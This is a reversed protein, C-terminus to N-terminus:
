KFQIVIRDALRIVIYQKQKVTTLKVQQNDPQPLKQMDYGAPMVFRVIWNNNNNKEPDKAQIVPATMAIQIKQDNGGFIYNALLRFGAKIADYREGSVSVEAVIMKEYERITINGDSKITTYPPESVKYANM